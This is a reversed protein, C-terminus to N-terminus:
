RVGAGRRSSLPFLNMTLNKTFSHIAPDNQKHYQRRSSSLPFLNM